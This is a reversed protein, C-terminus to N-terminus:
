LQGNLSLMLLSATIRNKEEKNKKVKTYAKKYKDIADTYQQKAFAEDAGKAPNRQAFLTITFPILILLVLLTKLCTGNM